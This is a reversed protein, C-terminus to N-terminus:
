PYLPVEARAATDAYRLAFPFRGCLQELSLDRGDATRGAGGGGFADVSGPRDPLVLRTDQWGGEVVFLTDAQLPLRHALRPVVVLAWAERSQRTFALMAPALAGEIPVPRYDGTTFLPALRRRLALTRAVLAQKVRGDCWSPALDVPAEGRLSAVRAPGAVPRRNDPDVLSLDWFETGQYLDPVGPATMRLMAQALGNV